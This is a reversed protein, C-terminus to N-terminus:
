CSVCNNGNQYFKASASCACSVIQSTFPHVKFTHGTRCAFTTNHDFNPIFSGHICQVGDNVYSNRCNICNTDNQPCTTCTGAQNVSYDNIFDCVCSATLFNLTYGTPCTGSGGNSLNPMYVCGLLTLGFPAECDNCQSILNGMPACGLCRGSKTDIYSGAYCYCTTWPAYYDFGTQCSCTSSSAANLGYPILRCNYCVTPNSNKYYQM